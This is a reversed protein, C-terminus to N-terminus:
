AAHASLAALARRVRELAEAPTAGSALVHGMKRRPRVRRKEYLHVRVGPIKLAEAFPPATPTWLDGLLNGIAAPRVLETSGLPLDLIARVAQEFQSTACAVETAHFTNHPRPALENVLLREGGVVFLEVALLGEIALQEAIGVALDRADRELKSSIPAPMLSWALVGGEHENLAPPFVAVEGRPSRAVLVSIEAELPLAAEVIGPTGALLARARALDGEGRAEVQGRGDYGGRCRKVFSAGFGLVAAELEADSAVTRFPGVPFGQRHLWAKQTARDQVIGLAEPAPRVPAHQRAAALADVGAAEIDFTVVAAGRALEAVADPDDFRATVLEDVVGRAPCEPDPDLARVPWGLTRASMAVLRGLQGGGVIAIPAEGWGSM